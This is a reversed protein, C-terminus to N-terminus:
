RVCSADRYAKSDSTTVIQRIRYHIVLIRPYRHVHWRDAIEEVREVKIMGAIMVAVTVIAAISVITVVIM